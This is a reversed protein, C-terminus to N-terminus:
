KMDDSGIYSDRGSNAEHDRRPMTYLNRGGHKYLSFESYKEQLKSINERSQLFEIIKNISPEKDKDANEQMVCIVKEVTLTNVCTDKIMRILARREETKGKQGNFYGKVLSEITMLKQMNTIM